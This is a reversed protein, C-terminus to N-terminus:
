LKRGSYFNGEKSIKMKQRRLDVEVGKIFLQTTNLPLCMIYEGALIPLETSEKSDSTYYLGFLEKFENNILLVVTNSALKDEDKGLVKLNSNYEQLDTLTKRKYRYM